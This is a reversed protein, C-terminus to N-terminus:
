ILTLPLITVSINKMVLDEHFFTGTQWITRQSAQRVQRDVLSSVTGLFAIKVFADQLLSLSAKSGAKGTAKAIKGTQLYTQDTVLCRTCISSQLFCNGSM